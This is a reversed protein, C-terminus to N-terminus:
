IHQKSSSSGNKLYYKLFIINLLSCKNLLINHNVIDFAKSLDYLTLLSVEKNVMNEYLKYTVTTLATETSLKPRFGHQSTSLLHYVELYFSLQKAVNKELVKSIIPLISVPIYDNVNDLDGNKYIPVVLAQNWTEHFVGTVM